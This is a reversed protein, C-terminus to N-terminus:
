PAFCHPIESDCGKCDARKQRETGDFGLMVAIATRIVAPTFMALGVSSMVLSLPIRMVLTPVVLVWFRAVLITTVFVSAGSWLALVLAFLAMVISFLHFRLTVASQRVAAM